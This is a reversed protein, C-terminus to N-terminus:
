RCPHSPLGRERNLKQTAECASRSQKGACEQNFWQTMQNLKNVKKNYNDVSSQSFQDVSSSRLENQLWKAENYVKVCKEMMADSIVPVHGRTSSSPPMEYATQAYASVVVSVLMTFVFARM